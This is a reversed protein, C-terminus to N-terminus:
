GTPNEGAGDAAPTGTRSNASSKKQPVVTEQIKDYIAQLVNQSVLDLSQEDPPLFIPRSGNEGEYGTIIDTHTLLKSLALVLVNKPLEIKQEKVLAKVSDATLEKGDARDQEIKNQINTVLDYVLAALKNDVRDTLIENMKVSTVRHHKVFLEMRFENGNEDLDFLEVVTQRPAAMQAMTIAM